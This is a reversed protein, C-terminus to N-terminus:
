PELERIAAVLEAARRDKGTRRAVNLAHRLTALRDARSAAQAGTHAPEQAPPDVGDVGPVNAPNPGLPGPPFPEKFKKV